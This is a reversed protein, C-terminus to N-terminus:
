ECWFPRSHHIAARMSRKEENFSNELYYVPGDWNDAEEKVQRRRLEGTIHSGYYSPPDQPGWYSIPRFNYDINGSM